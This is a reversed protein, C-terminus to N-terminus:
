KSSGVSVVYLREALSALLIVLGCATWFDFNRSSEPTKKTCKAYGWTCWSCLAGSNFEVIYMPNTSEPFRLRLIKM